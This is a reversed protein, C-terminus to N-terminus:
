WRPITSNAAPSLRLALVCSSAAKLSFSEGSSSARARWVKCCISHLWTATTTPLLAGCHCLFGATISFNPPSLSRECHRPLASSWSRGLAAWFAPTFIRDRPSIGPRSSLLGHHERSQRKASTGPGMGPHPHMRGLPAGGGTRTARAPLEISKGELSFYRTKLPNCPSNGVAKHAQLTKSQLPKRGNACFDPM